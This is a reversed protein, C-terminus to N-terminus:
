LLGSALSTLYPQPAGSPDPTCDLWIPRKEGNPMEQVIIHSGAQGELGVSRNIVWEYREPEIKRWAAGTGAYVVMLGSSYTPSNLRGPSAALDTILYGELIEPGSQYVKRSDNWRADLPGARHLDVENDFDHYFTNKKDDLLRRAYIVGSVTNRYYEGSQAPSVGSPYNFTLNGSAELRAIGSPDHKKQYDYVSPIPRGTLDYGWGVFVQPLAIGVARITGSTRGDLVESQKPQGSGVTVINGRGMSLTNYAMVKSQYHQGSVYYFNGSPDRIKNRTDPSLRVNGSQIYPFNNTEDTTGSATAFPMFLNSVPYVAKEMYSDASIWNVSADSQIQSAVRKSDGDTFLECAIYGYSTNQTRDTM